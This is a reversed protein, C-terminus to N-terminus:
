KEKKATFTGLPKEGGLGLGVYDGKGEQETFKGRLFLYADCLGPRNL